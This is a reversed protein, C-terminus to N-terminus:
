HCCGCSCGGLHPSCLADLFDAMELLAKANITFFKTKGEMTEVIVDAEGLISLQELLEAPKISLSKALAAGSMQKEDALQHIISFRQEDGFAAMRKVMLNKDM